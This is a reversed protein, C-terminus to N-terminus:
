IYYITFEGPTNTEYWKNIENILSKNGNAMLFEEFDMSYMTLMKVKGVPFSSNMRKLKVGLLSEAWIIKFYEESENFYKKVNKM